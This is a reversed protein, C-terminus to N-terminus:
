KGDNDKYMKNKIVVSKLLTADASNSDAQNILSAIDKPLCSGGYGRNDVYVFTHSSGIRPDALWVERAQNYNVGLKEAIDYMENCFIVKTALYANEMYKAMETTKADNQYIRVNSNVVTKYAQIALDIGKPSGGFSLWNRDTLNSFPHGVTEGYYEPQFVIEKGFKERMKDTFGIYVTSRLIIVKVNIWSLVEEVITTDCSGDEKSPTPVCVFVADCTNIEETNGIELIKDYVVADKFLKHMAKGVHGYGVIGIKM